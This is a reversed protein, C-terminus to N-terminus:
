VVGPIMRKQQKFPRDEKVEQKVLFNRKSGLEARMSARWSQLVTLDPDAEPETPPEDAGDKEGAQQLILSNPNSDKRVTMWGTAKDRSAVCQARLRGTLPDELPLGFVQVVEGAELMRVKNSIGTATPESPLFAAVTLEAEKALQHRSVWPQLHCETPNCILNGDTGDSVARVRYRQFLSGGSVEKPEEFAAFAEGPLLSKLVKSKSAIGEHVQTPEVCIYHRPATRVFEKGQSGTTTIWGEIGDQCARVKKRVGGEKPRVEEGSLLELAEGTNIRRLLTCNGLDSIDTMAIPENCKCIASSLKAVTRGDENRIQLWGIAEQGCTVGRVRLESGQGVDRPGDLLELLEGAELTRIAQSDVTDGTQLPKATTCLFFPKETPTLDSTGSVGRVTAWGIGGDCVARCRVRESSSNDDKEPQGLVELVEGVDLNRIKKASVVELRDTLAMQRNVKFFTSLAWSFTRRTLGCPALHKIAFNVSDEPLDLDCRGSQFFEQLQVDTVEGTGDSLDVFLKDVELTGTEGKAALRLSSLVKQKAETSAKEFQKSVIANAAQGKRDVGKLRLGLRAFEVKSHTDSGDVANVANRAHVLLKTVECVKDHLQELVSLQQGAANVNGLNAVAHEAAQLVQTAEKVAQKSASRSQDLARAKAENLSAQTKQIRKFIDRLEKLELGQSTQLKMEVQVTAASLKGQVASIAKEAEQASSSSWEFSSLRTIDAEAQKLNDLITVLSRSVRIQEEYKRAV